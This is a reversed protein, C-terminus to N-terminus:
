LPKHTTLGNSIKDYLDPFSDGSVSFYGHKGERNTYSIQGSYFTEGKLNIDKCTVLNCKVCMAQILQEMRQLSETANIFLNDSM